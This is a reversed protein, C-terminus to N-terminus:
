IDEEAFYSNFMTIGKLYYFRKIINQYFYFDIFCVLILLGIFFLNFNVFFGYIGYMFIILILYDPYGGGIQGGGIQGGGIQGGVWGKIKMVYVKCRMIAVLIDKYNESTNFTLDLMKLSNNFKSIYSNFLDIYEYEWKFRYFFLISLFFFAIVKIYSVVNNADFTSFLFPIDSVSFIILIAVCFIIPLYSNIEKNSHSLLNNIQDNFKNKKFVKKLTTSINKDVIALTTKLKLYNSDIEYEKLSMETNKVIDEESKDYCYSYPELLQSVFTDRSIKLFGKREKVPMEHLLLTVINNSGCSECYDTYSTEEGCDDCVLTHEKREYELHRRANYANIELTIADKVFSGVRKLGEGLAEGIIEDLM